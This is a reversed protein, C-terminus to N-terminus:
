EQVSQVLPLLVKFSTRQQNSAVKISGHHSEVIGKAIALGLGTGGTESSRSTEVRYLRDFLLPIAAEPIPDGYNIIDVAAYHGERNIIVLIDKGDM